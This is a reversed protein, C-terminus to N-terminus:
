RADIGGIHCSIYGSEPISGRFNTSLNEFESSFKGLEYGFIIGSFWTAQIRSRM